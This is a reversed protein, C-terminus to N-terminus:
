GDDAIRSELIQLAERMYALACGIDASPGAPAALATDVAPTDPCLMRMGFSAILEAIPEIPKGRRADFWWACWNCMGIISFAAVDVDVPRFTGQAVGRRIVGVFSDRVARRAAQAAAQQPQPLNGESREAVRFQLPHALVLGAHRLILERLAEDPPLEARHSVEATLESARETVEKTLAELIAEKSRFYYYLATRTMGVADAIDNINTSGFGKEIFLLCAADLITQRQLENRPARSVTTKTKSPM